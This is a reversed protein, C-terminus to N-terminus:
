ERLDDLVVATGYCLIEAASTMIMSTSFRMAVIANGGLREAEEVMRDISQERSEALLKTYEIIEGGIINRMVATIDKGIHRARVANGRVLGLTKVIRKGPVADTTTVIM